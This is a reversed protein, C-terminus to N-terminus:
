RRASAACWVLMAAHLAVVPWLMVGALSTSGALALVGTAAANYVLIAWLLGRQTASGPDNRAFGCAIGIALLGAGGVRAVILAEPSPAPIGFLLSIVLAPAALLSLGVGAEMLATVLFLNKTNTM